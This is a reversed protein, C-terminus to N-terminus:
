TSPALGRELHLRRADLHRPTGALGYPLFSIMATLPGPSLNM